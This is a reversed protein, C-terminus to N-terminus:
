TLHDGINDFSKPDFGTFLQINKKLQNSLTASVNFM